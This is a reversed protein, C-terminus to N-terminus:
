DISLVIDAANIMGDSNVDLDESFESIEDQSLYSIINTRLESNRVVETGEEPETVTVDFSISSYGYKVTVTSTGAESFDYFATLKSTDVDTIENSNLFFRIGSLDLFEETYYETRAETCDLSFVINRESTCLPSTGSFREINWFQEPEANYESVFARGESFTLVMGTDEPTCITMSNNIETLISWESAESEDDALFVGNETHTLALGTSYSYIRYNGNVLPEFRFNQSVTGSNRPSETLECSDTRTLYTGEATNSIRFGDGYFKSVPEDPYIYGLLRYGKREWNSDAMETYSSFMAGKSQSETVLISGDDYSEEIVSVHGHTGPTKEFCKVAGNKPECGYAYAGSQINEPYWKAANNRSLAPATGHIEFIRGYAYATCNPMGCHFTNYPNVPGFFYDKEPETENAEPTETRIEFDPAPQMVSASVPIAASFIFAASIVSSLVSNIVKSM